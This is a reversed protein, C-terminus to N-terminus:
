TSSDSQHARQALPQRPLFIRGDQLLATLCFTGGGSFFSRAMNSMRKSLSIEPFSHAINSV